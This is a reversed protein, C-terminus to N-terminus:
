LAPEQARFFDALTAGEPLKAQAMRDDRYKRLAGAYDKWNPYPPRTKWSEAMRGLVFLSAVECVTEEFWPNPNPYEEFNGVIHGMEHAFQFAFQAWYSGGVNLKVRIEGGPGRQFPTTPWTRSRSVEIAPFKREPVHAALTDGASQLVKAIDAAGADGWGDAAVRLVLPQREQLTGLLMVVAAIWTRM